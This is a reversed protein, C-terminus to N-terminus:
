PKCGIQTFRLCQILYQSEQMLQIERNRCCYQTDVTSSRVVSLCPSPINRQKPLLVVPRCYQKASVSVCPSPINNQLTGLCLQQARDLPPVDVLSCRRSLSGHVISSVQKKSIDRSTLKIRYVAVVLCTRCVTFPHIVSSFNICSSSNLLTSRRVTNALSSPEM